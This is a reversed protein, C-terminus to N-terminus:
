ATNKSPEKRAAMPLLTVNDAQHANVPARPVPGSSRQAADLPVAGQARLRADRQALELLKPHLGNGRQAALQHLAAFGALPNQM